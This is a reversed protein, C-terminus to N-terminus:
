EYYAEYDELAQKYGERHSVLSLVGLPTGGERMVKEFEAAAASEAVDRGPAHRKPLDAVKYEALRVGTQTEVGIMAERAELRLYARGVGSLEKTSM